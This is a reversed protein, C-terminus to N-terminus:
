DFVPGAFESPVCLEFGLEGVYSIRQARVLAYGLEIERAAGFPFAQNSLDARTLGSLLERSGPGMLGLVAWASTVDTLFAQADEPIHRSLWHFDRAQSVGATTIMFRDEALRTVTLDAEIGGRENLWQTYVIAALSSRSTTPASGSCCRRPM